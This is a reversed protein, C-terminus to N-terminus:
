SQMTACREDAARSVRTFVWLSSVAFNVVGSALTSLVGAAAYGFGATETLLPMTVLNAALTVTGTAAQFRLLRAAIERAPLGISRDRWTWRLHWAFNHLLSLEVALATAPLCGLGGADHLLVLAGVKVATGIAGVAVFKLGCCAGSFRTANV